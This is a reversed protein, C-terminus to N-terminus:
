QKIIQLLEVISSVTNATKAINSSNVGEFSSSSLLKNVFQTATATTLTGGAGAVMGKIFSQKYSKDEKNQKLM